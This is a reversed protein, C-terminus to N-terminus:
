GTLHEASLPVRLESVLASAIIAVGRGPETQTEGVPWEDIRRQAFARV